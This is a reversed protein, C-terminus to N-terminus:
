HLIIYLLTHYLVVNNDETKLRKEGRGKCKNDRYCIVSALSKCVHKGLTEKNLGRFDIIHVFLFHCLNGFQYCVFGQKACLLHQCTILRCTIHAYGLAVEVFQCHPM